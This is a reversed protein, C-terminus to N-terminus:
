YHTNRKLYTVLSDCFIKTDEKSSDYLVKDLAPAFSNQQWLQFLSLIREQDPRFQEAKKLIGPLDYLNRVDLTVGKGSYFSEGFTIVPKEHMLAEYGVTSNIVCIIKAKEILDHANLLPAVIKVNPLDSIFKLM